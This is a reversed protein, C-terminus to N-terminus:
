ERQQGFLLDLAASVSRRCLQLRGDVGVDLGAVGIGLGKAPGLGCVVDEGRDLAETPSGEGNLSFNFLFKQIPVSAESSCGGGSRTPRAGAPVSSRSGIPPM